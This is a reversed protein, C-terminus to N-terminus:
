VEDNLVEALAPDAELVGAFEMCDVFQTLCDGAVDWPMSDDRVLQRLLLLTRHLADSYLGDEELVKRAELEGLSKMRDSISVSSKGKLIVRNEM